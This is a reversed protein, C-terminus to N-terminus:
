GGTTTPTTTTDASTTDTTDDPATTDDPTTTPSPGTTAPRGVVQIEDIALETFVQGDILQAPWASNVTITVQNTNLSAFDITQAGPINQLDVQTDSLSDDSSITLARARYNRQFRTDDNTINSWLIHSIAVATRFQITITLTEGSAELEDWNVQYLADSGSTLNTCVFSGLGEVSCNVDLPDLVDPEEVQRTTSTSEGAAVSTETPEEGGSFLQFLLAIIIVGLLLGGIAIVARVGATAQVAPRPAAPLPGQSLRAGCEECHRNGPANEAGCSPCVVPERVHPPPTEGLEFREYDEEHHPEDEYGLFDGCTPCFQESSNVTAGCNPCVHRAM